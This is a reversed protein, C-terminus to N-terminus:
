LNDGVSRWILTCVWNVTDGTGGTATVEISDDTGNIVNQLSWTSDTEIETNVGTGVSTVTGADNRFLETLEYSAAQLGGDTDDNADCRATIRLITDSTTDITRMNESTTGSTQRRVTETYEESGTFASHSKMALRSRILVNARDTYVIEGTSIDTAPTGQHGLIVQAANDTTDVCLPQRTNTDSDHSLCWAVSSNDQIFHEANGGNFGGTSIYLAIDSEPDQGIYATTM